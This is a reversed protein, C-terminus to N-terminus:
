HTALATNGAYVFCHQTYPGHVRLKAALARVREKQGPHEHCYSIFVSHLEMQKAESFDSTLTILNVHETSSFM